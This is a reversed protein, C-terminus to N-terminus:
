TATSTSAASGTILASAGASSCRSCETSGSCRWMGRWIGWPALTTGIAQCAWIITIKGSKDPNYFSQTDRFPMETQDIEVVGDLPERQPDIMSRRLKQALLWATRYSIGLQSRLQLASMGNSHTAMLHAAWFWVTLPQRSRHMVTGATISTQRGCDICEYTWARSQLLVARGGGCGPCVFGEPWRLEFLFDVCSQEDPFAKQFRFLLPQSTSSM